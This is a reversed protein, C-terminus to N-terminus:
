WTYVDWKTHIHVFTVAHQTLNEIAALGKQVFCKAGESVGGLLSGRKHALLLM